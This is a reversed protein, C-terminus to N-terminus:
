TNGKLNRIKKRGAPSGLPLDGAMWEAVDFCFVQKSWILGAYAQTVILQKAESSNTKFHPTYFDQSEQKRLATFKGFDAFPEASELGRQTLRFKLSVSQGAGIEKLFHAGCKTGHQAANVASLDRHVIAQNLGDKVFPSPNPAGYLRKLNSENETFLWQQPREQSAFLYRGLSEHGMVLYKEGDPPTGYEFACIERDTGFV